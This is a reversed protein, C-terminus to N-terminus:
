AIVRAKFRQKYENVRAQFGSGHGMEVEQGGVTASSLVSLGVQELAFRAATTGFSTAEQVDGTKQLELSLAGLSANGAGTADVVKSSAPQYFSPLWSAQGPQSLVLYGHEAARIVITLSSNTDLDLLDLLQKGRIEIESRSDACGSGSEPRSLLAALELHDPSFVNLRRCAQLHTLRNVFNCSGPLPEWIILPNTNHDRHQRSELLGEM